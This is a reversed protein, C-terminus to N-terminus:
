KVYPCIPDSFEQQDAVHVLLGVSILSTGFVKAIGM